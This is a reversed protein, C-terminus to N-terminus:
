TLEGLWLKTIAATSGGQKSMQHAATIVVKNKGSLTILDGANITEALQGQVVNSTILVRSMNQLQLANLRPAFFLSRDKTDNGTIANGNDDISYFEPVEHRRMFESIINGSSDTQAQFTKADQKFLDQLRVALMKGKKFVLVAGLEQLCQAVGYSPTGGKYCYFRSASIDQEFRVIAGAARYVEQLTVLDRIIARRTKFTIEACSDLLATIKVFQISDTGRVLGAAPEEEIKVIRYDMMEQGTRVLQGEKFKERKQVTFELTRPVPALDSRLVWDQVLDQRIAQGNIYLNM